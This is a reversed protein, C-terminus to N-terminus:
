RQAQRNLEQKRTQAPKSDPKPGRRKAPQGDKTYKKDGVLPEYGKLTGGGYGNRDPPLVPLAGIPPPAPPATSYLIANGGAGFEAKVLNMSGPPSDALSLEAISPGRPRNYPDSATAAPTYHYHAHPSPHHPISPGTYEAEM